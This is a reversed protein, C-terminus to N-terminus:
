EAKGQIFHSRPAHQVTAITTDAPSHRSEIDFQHRISEDNGSETTQKSSLQSEMLSLPLTSSNHCAAGPRRRSRWPGVFKVGAESPKLVGMSHLLRAIVRGVPSAQIGGPITPMGPLDFDADADNYSFVCVSGFEFM